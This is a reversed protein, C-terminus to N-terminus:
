KMMGVLRENVTEDCERVMREILEKCSPIDKILGIVLGATWIGHEMDGKEFVVRGKVGAVLDKIDDFNTPGPLAEIELVKKAVSNKYVRMTNRLTRYIHATDLESANVMTQKVNDHVPAEKTALFRTGMNIGDAGLALAAAMGRGDGIGGSALFPISLANAAIPLLVFNTVDDEGPHGACEM